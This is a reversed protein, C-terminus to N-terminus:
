AAVGGVKGRVRGQERQGRDDTAAGGTPVDGDDDDLAEIAGWLATRCRDAAVGRLRNAAVVGEV